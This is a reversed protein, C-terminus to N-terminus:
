VMSGKPAGTNSWMHGDCGLVALVCTRLPCVLAGQKWLRLLQGDSVYWLSRGGSDNPACAGVCPPNGSPREPSQQPKESTSSVQRWRGGRLDPTPQAPVTASPDPPERERGPRLKALGVGGGPSPGGKEPERRLAGLEGSTGSALANSAVPHALGQNRGLVEGVAPTSCAQTHAALPKHPGPDWSM